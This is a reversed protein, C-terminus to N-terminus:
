PPSGAQPICFYYMNQLDRVSGYKVAVGMQCRRDFGSGGAGLRRAMPVKRSKRAPFTLRALRSATQGASMGITLPAATVCVPNVEDRDGTETGKFQFCTSLCAAGTVWSRLWNAARLSM